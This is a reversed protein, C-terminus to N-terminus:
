HYIKNLRIYQFYKWKLMYDIYFNSILYRIKSDQVLDKFDTTHKIDVTCRPETEMCWTILYPKIHSTAGLIPCHWRSPSLSYNPHPSIIIWSVRGGKLPKVTRSYEAGDLILIGARLDLIMSWKEEPVTIIIRISYVSNEKRFTHRYDATIRHVKGKMVPNSLPPFVKFGSTPCLFLFISLLLHM